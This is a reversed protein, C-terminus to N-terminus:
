YVSIYILVQPVIKWTHKGTSPPIGSASPKTAMHRHASGHEVGRDLLSLNYRLMQM